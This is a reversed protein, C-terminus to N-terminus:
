SLDAILVPVGQLHENSLHHVVLVRLIAVNQEGLRLAFALGLFTLILFQVSNCLKEGLEARLIKLFHSCQDLSLSLGRTFSFFIIVSIKRLYVRIIAKVVIM